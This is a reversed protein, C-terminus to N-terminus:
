GVLISVPIAVLTGWLSLNAFFRQYGNREGVSEFLVLGVVHAINALAIAGAIITRASCGSLGSNVLGGQTSFDKGCSAALIVLVITGVIAVVIGAVDRGALPPLNRSGPEMEKQDSEDRGPGSRETERVSAGDREVVFHTVPVEFQKRAREFLDAELWRADEEDHTVLLISEAGPFERMADGIALLPDSDGVQASVEAEESDLADTEALEQKSADVRTQAEEVAADVAGMAHQFRTEVLAPVVLHVEPARGNALRAIEREVPEGVHEDAAVVIIRFRDSM